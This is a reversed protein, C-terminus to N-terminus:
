TAESLVGAVASAALARAVVSWPGPLYRRAAMAVAAIYPSICWPCTILYAFSSDPGLRDLLKERPIAFPPFADEGILKTLRFVALVDVVDETM